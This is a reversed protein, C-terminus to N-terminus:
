NFNINKIKILRWFLNFRRHYNVEKIGYINKARGGGKKISFITTAAGVLSPVVGLKDVLKTAFDVANSLFDIIGKAFDTDIVTAWFEQINNTLNNIKGNISDLYANLEKQASGASDQADEFVNRLMDPNQLISAAINARNKLINLLIRM